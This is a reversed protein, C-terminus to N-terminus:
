GTAPDAPLFHPVMFDCDQMKLVPDQPGCTDGSMPYHGPASCGLLALTVLVSLCAPLRM